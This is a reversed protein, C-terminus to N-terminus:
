PKDDVTRPAQVAGEVSQKFADVRQAPPVPVTTGSPGAAPPAVSRSALKAVVALVVLLLLISGLAKM